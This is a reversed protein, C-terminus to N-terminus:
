IGESLCILLMMHKRCSRSDIDCRTIQGMYSTSEMSQLSRKFNNWSGDITAEVVPESGLSEVLSADFEIQAGLPYLGKTTYLAKKTGRFRYNADDTCYWGTPCYVTLYSPADYLKLEGDAKTSFVIINKLRPKTTYDFSPLIYNYGDNDVDFAIWRLNPCSGWDDLGYVIQNRHIVGGVTIDVKKKIVAYEIDQSKPFPYVRFSGDSNGEAKYTVNGITTEGLWEEASADAAEVYAPMVVSMLLVILVALRATQGSLFTKMVKIAGASGRRQQFHLQQYSM